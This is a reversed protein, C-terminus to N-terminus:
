NFQQITISYYDASTTNLASAGNATQVVIQVSPASTPSQTILQISMKDNIASTPITYYISQTGTANFGILIQIEQSSNSSVVSYNITFLLNKNAIIKPVSTDILAYQQVNTNTGMQGSTNFILNDASSSGTGVALKLEDLIVPNSTISNISM